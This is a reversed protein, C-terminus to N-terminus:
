GVELQGFTMTWPFPSKKYTYTQRVLILKDLNKLDKDGTDLTYRNGVIFGLNEMSNYEVMDGILNGIVNSYRFRSPFSDLNYFFNDRGRVFSFTGSSLPTFVKGPDDKISGYTRCMLGRFDYFLFLADKLNNLNKEISEWRYKYLLPGLLINRLPFDFSYDVSGDAIEVKMGRALAHASIFKETVLSSSGRPYGLVDYSYAGELGTRKHSVIDWEHGLYLLTNGASFDLNEQFKFRFSCFSHVERFDQRFESAEILVNNEDFNVLIGM